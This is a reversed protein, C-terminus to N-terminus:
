FEYRQCIETYLKKTHVIIDQWQSNYHVLKTNQVDSAARLYGPIEDPGDPCTRLSAMTHLSSAVVGLQVPRFAKPAFIVRELRWRAEALRGLRILTRARGLQILYALIHDKPLTNISYALMLGTVASMLVAEWLHTYLLELPGAGVILSALFLGAFFQLIDKVRLRLGAPIQELQDTLPERILMEPNLEALVYLLWFVICITLFIQNLLLPLSWPLPFPPGQIFFLVISVPLLLLFWTVLSIAVIVAIQFASHIVVFIPMFIYYLINVIASPKNTGQKIMAKKYLMFIPAYGLILISVTIVTQFSPIYRTILYALGAAIAPGLLGAILITPVFNTNQKDLEDYLRLANDPTAAETASAQFFLLSTM